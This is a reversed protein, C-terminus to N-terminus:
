ELSKSLLIIGFGNNDLSTAWAAIPKKQTSNPHMMPQLCFIFDKEKHAEHDTCAAQNSADAQMMEDM